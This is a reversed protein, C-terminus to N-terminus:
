KGLLLDVVWCGRGHLPRDIWVTALGHFHEQCAEAALRAPLISPFTGHNGSAGAFTYRVTAPQRLHALLPNPRRGTGQCEQHEGRDVMETHWKFQRHPVEEFLRGRGGCGKCLEDTLGADELADGLIPMADWDRKQYIREALSLVTNTPMWDGYWVLEEAAGSELAAASMDRAARVTRWGCTAQRHPTGIICRMLEARQATTPPKSANHQATWHYAWEVDSLQDGDDNIGDVEYADVVEVNTGAALCCACCWLRLKRSAQKYNDDLKWLRRMGPYSDTQVTAELLCSLMAHPDTSTEWESTIM